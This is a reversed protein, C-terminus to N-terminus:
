LESMEIDGRWRAASGSVGPYLGEKRLRGDQDLTRTYEGCPDSLVEGPSRRVERLM